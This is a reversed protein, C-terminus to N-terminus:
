YATFLPRENTMKANVIKAHEDQRNGFANEKRFPHISSDKTVNREYGAVGDEYNWRTSLGEATLTLSIM